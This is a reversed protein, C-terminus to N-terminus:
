AAPAGIPSEESAELPKKSKVEYTIGTFSSTIYDDNLLNVFKDLDKGDMIIINGVDDLMLGVGLEDAHEMLKNQDINALDIKQLKQVLRKKGKLLAQLTLEDPLSLKFNAELEAVKQHTLHQLKANYKFMGEFKTENFVFVTEGIILAQNDPTVRLGAAASFEQFSNGSFMWATDGRLVQSQKVQKCIYFPKAQAPHSFRAVMGKIKKFEHSEETFPDLDAEEEDIRVIVENANEVRVLDTRQLVSDETESMEFERVSMGKAAGERVYRLMDNLFLKKLQQKLEDAYRVTYVTYDKDFLFFDIELGDRMPETNTAWLFVDAKESESNDM